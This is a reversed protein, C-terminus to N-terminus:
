DDQDGKLISDGKLAREFKEIESLPNLIRIKGDSMRILYFPDNQDDKGAPAVYLINDSDYQYAAEVKAPSFFAEILVVGDNISIM